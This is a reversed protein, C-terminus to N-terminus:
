PEGPDPENSPPTKWDKAEAVAKTVALYVHKGDLGGIADVPVYYDRPFLLGKEVILHTPAVMDPWFGIVKGLKHGDSSLVENGEKIPWEDVFLEM